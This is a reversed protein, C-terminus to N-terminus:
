ALRLFRRGKAIAGGAALAALGLWVGAPLPIVNGGGGDDDSVPQFTGTLAFTATLATTTFEPAPNFVGFEDVIEAHSELGIQIAQEESILSLERQGTAPNTACGLALVGLLSALILNTKM